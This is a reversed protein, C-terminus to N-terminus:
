PATKACELTAAQAPRSRVVRPGHAAAGGSLIFGPEGTADEYKGVIQTGAGNIGLAFTTGAIASTVDLTTYVGGSFLFGHIGTGNLYYGVIKGLASIGSAVTGQAHPDDITTYTGGNPNYLFGHTGTVDLYSGVFQGTNNLGYANTTGISSPDDFTNFIRIPM